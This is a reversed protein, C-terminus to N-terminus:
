YPNQTSPPDYGCVMISGSNARGICIGGTYVNSYSDTYRLKIFVKIGDTVTLLREYESKTIVDSFISSFSVETPFLPVGRTPMTSGINSGTYRVQKRDRIYAEVEATDYGLNFKMPAGDLKYAETYAVNLAPAKGLNTFTWTWVIQGTKGTPDNHLPLFKPEGWDKSWVYPRQDQQFQTRTMNAIKQTTHAQWATLGAYFTVVVLTAVELWWKRRETDIHKNKSASKTKVVKPEPAPTNESV